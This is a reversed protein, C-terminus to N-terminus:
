LYLLISFSQPYRCYEYPFILRDPSKKITDKGLVIMGRTPSLPLISCYQYNKRGLEKTKSLDTGGM